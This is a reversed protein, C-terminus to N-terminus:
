ARNSLARIFGEPDDISLGISRMSARIGMPGTAEVPARLQIHVTEFLPRCLNRHGSRPEQGSRDVSEILARDVVVQWRIGVTIDIKDDDVRVPRLRLAQVDAVLWLLSYISTATLIWAVGDSYPAVLLHILVTEIAVLVGLAGTLVFAGGERYATFCRDDKPAEQRWGTMAFGIVSLESAVWPAAVGLKLKAQLAQTLAERAPVGADILARRYRSADAVAWAVLTVVGFRTAVALSVFVPSATLGNDPFLITAANFGIAVVGMGARLLDRSEFGGLWWLVFVSTLTLDFLLGAAMLEPRHTWIPARTVTAVMAYITAVLLLALRPRQMRRILM